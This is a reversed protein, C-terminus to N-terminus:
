PTFGVGYLRTERLFAAIQSPSPPQPEAELCISRRGPGPRHVLGLPVLRSRREFFHGVAILDLTVSSTQFFGCRSGLGVGGISPRTKLVFGGERHHFDWAGQLAPM